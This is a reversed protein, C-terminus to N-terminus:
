HNDILVVFEGKQLKPDAELVALLENWTGRLFSEHLKSIEKAICIQQEPFYNECEKLFKLIRHTSEYLVITTKLEQLQGFQKQRGKKQPLFGHFYFQDSPMGSGVIAPILATAGPLVTIPIDNQVAARVLLFGPDSIGPTGADSILAFDRGSSLDSIIQENVKHENFKHYPRLPTQIEYHDFLKKSTRTDEAFVLDVEKLVRLARFTLDEINGVPTPVIYLM